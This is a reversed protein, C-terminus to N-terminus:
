AIWSVCGKQCSGKRSCWKYEVDLPGSKLM